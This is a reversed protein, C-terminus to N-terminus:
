FNTPYSHAMVAQYWILQADESSPSLSDTSQLNLYIAGGGWRMATWFVAKSADEESYSFELHTEKYAQRTEQCHPKAFLKMKTRNQQTEKSKKKRFGSISHCALNLTFLTVYKESITSYNITSEISTIHLFLFMNSHTISSLDTLAQHQGLGNWNTRELLEYHKRLFPISIPVPIVVQIHKLILWHFPYPWLEGAM